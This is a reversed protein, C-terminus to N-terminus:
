TLNAPADPDGLPDTLEECAALPILAALLLRILRM